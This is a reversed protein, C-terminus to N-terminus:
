RRRKAYSVDAVFGDEGNVSYLVTQVRGDPLLVYYRGSTSAHDRAEEHGFDNGSEADVVGYQYSYVPPADPHTQIRSDAPRAHTAGVVMVVVVVMVLMVMVQPLFLKM